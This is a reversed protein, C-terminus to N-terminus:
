SIGTLSMNVSGIRANKTAVDNTNDKAANSSIGFKKTPISKGSIYTIKPAQSVGVANPAQDPFKMANMIM